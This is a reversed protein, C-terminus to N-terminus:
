FIAYNLDWHNATPRQKHLSPHLSASVRSVSCSAVIPIPPAPAAFLGLAPPSVCPWNAFPSRLLHDSLESLSVILDDAPTAARFLVPPRALHHSSKRGTSTEHEMPLSPSAGWFSHGAPACKRHGPSVIWEFPACKDSSVQPRCTQKPPRIPQSFGSKVSFPKTLTYGRSGTLDITQDEALM